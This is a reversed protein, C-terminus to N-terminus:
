KPVYVTHAEGPFVNSRLRLLEDQENRLDLLLYSFPSETALKYAEVAYRSNHPFIQRALHVFQSSDRPSKFFVLYQANLSMTRMNKNSNFLNQVIHIVSNRRHHSGRTFVNLIADNSEMMMDDCVILTDRAEELERVTPVGQRFDIQPYEDFVPQYEMFYYVTSKPPPEIMTEMNEVLRLVFLTKGSGTSGCCIATFPHKFPLVATSRTRETPMSTM